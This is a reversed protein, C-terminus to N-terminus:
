GNAKCRWGMVCVSSPLWRSGVCGNVERKESGVEKGIKWEVGSWEKEAGDWRNGMGMGGGSRGEEMESGGSRELGVGSENRSGSEWKGKFKAKAADKAWSTKWPGPLSVLIM